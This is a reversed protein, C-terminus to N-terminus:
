SLQHCCLGTSGDGTEELEIRSAAFGVRFVKLLTM